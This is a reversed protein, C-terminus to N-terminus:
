APRQILTVARMGLLERTEKVKNYSNLFDVASTNDRLFISLSFGFFRKSDNVIIKHRIDLTALMHELEYRIVNKSSENTQFFKETIEASFPHTAQLEVLDSKGLMMITDKTALLAYLYSPPCEQIKKYQIGADDMLKCVDSEEM